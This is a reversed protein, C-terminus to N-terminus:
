SISELSLLLSAQETIMRNSAQLLVIARQDEVRQSTYTCIQGGLPGCIDGHHRENQELSVQARITKDNMPMTRM